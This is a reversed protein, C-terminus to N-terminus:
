LVNSLCADEFYIITLFICLIYFYKIFKKLISYSVCCNNVIKVIFLHKASLLKQFRALDISGNCVDLM